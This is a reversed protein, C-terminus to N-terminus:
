ASPEPLMGVANASNSGETFWVNNARDFVLGYPASQATPIPYFTFQESAPQFQGLANDGLDTFWITGNPGVALGYVGAADSGSVIAPVAFEQIAGTKPDLRGLKGAEFEAFWIAGDPAVVIEMMSANATPPSYPQMAGTAPDLRVIKDGSLETFWVYGQRDIALGYPGVIKDPGADPVPYERLQGTAVDLRGIRDASLETFWLNGHQDFALDQPGSPGKDARPTTPYTQFAGTTPIFEGIYGANQEAFWIHNQTDAVIGMIGYDAHPPTWETVKGTHPDLMGLRNGLMEGFWINGSADIAPRMLGSQPHPMQFEQISAVEVSYPLAATKGQSNGSADSGACGALVLLLLLLVAFLSTARKPSALRKGPRRHPRQPAVAGGAARKLRWARAAFLNPMGGGFGRLPDLWLTPARWSEPRLYRAALSNASYRSRRAMRFMAMM